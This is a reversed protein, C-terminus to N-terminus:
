RLEIRVPLPVCTTDRAAPDAACVEILHTGPSTARADWRYAFGASAAGPAQLARAVDPREIHSAGALDAPHTGDVTVRVSAAPLHWPPPGGVLAPQWTPRGTVVAWGRIAVPEAAVVGPRPNDVTLTVRAGTPGYYHPVVVGLLCYLNLAAMAAVLAWPALPAWRPPLAARWGAVVALAVLPLLTLLYRGHVPYFRGLSQALTALLTGAPWLVLLLGAPSRLVAAARARQRPVLLARWIGLAAVTLAVALAAYVWGPAFLSVRDFGAWFSRFTIVGWSQLYEADWPNRTIAAGPVEVAPTLARIAAEAVGLPWPRGYLAWNHLLWPGAVLAAGLGALALLLPARLCSQRDARPGATVHWGAALIAAAAAPYATYKSLLACGVALGFALASTPSSVGAWLTAVALAAALAFVDSNVVAAQFSFQPVAALLAAVPLALARLPPLVVRVFAYTLAVAALAALLSGLRAAVPPALPLLRILAADVVYTLPPALAHPEIPIGVQDLRVYMDADPGFAPLRGHSALVQAVDLHSPEDPADGFPVASGWLLWNTAVALLLIALPWHHLLAGAPRANVRVPSRNPNAPAAPSASV